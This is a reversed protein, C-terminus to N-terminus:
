GELLEAFQKPHQKRSSCLQAGGVSIIAVSNPTTSGKLHCSFASLRAIRGPWTWSSPSLASNMSTIDNLGEVVNCVQSAQRASLQRAFLLNGSSRFASPRRMAILTTGQMASTDRIATCKLAARLREAVENRGRRSYPPLNTTLSSSNHSTKRGIRGKM